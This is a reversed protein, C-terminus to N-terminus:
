YGEGVRGARADVQAVAVPAAAPGVGGHGAIEGALEIIRRQGGVITLEVKGPRMALVDVPRARRGAAGPCLRLHQVGAGRWPRRRDGHGAVLEVEGPSLAVLGVMDPVAPKLRRCSGPGPLFPDVKGRAPRRLEGAPA